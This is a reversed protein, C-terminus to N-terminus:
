CQFKRKVPCYVIKNDQLGSSYVKSWWRAHKGSAIPTELVARVASHDTYMLVDHGYDYTSM